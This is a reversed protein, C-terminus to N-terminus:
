CLYILCQQAIPRLDHAGTAGHRHVSCSSRWLLFMVARFNGVSIHSVKLVEGAIEKKGVM